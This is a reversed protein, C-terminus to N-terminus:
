CAKTSAENQLRRAGLKAFRHHNLCGTIQLWQGPTVPAQPNLIQRALRHIYAKPNLTYLHLQCLIPTQTTTRGSSTGAQVEDAPPAPTEFCRTACFRKTVYKSPGADEEGFNAGMASARLRLQDRLGHSPSPIRLTPGSYHPSRILLPGRM